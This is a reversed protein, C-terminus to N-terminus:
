CPSSVTSSFTSYEDPDFFYICPCPFRRSVLAVINDPENEIYFKMRDSTYDAVCQCGRRSDPQTTLRALDRFLLVGPQASGTM